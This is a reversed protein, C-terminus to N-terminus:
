RAGPLVAPAIPKIVWVKDADDQVKRRADRATPAAYLISDRGWVSDRDGGTRVGMHKESAALSDFTWQDVGLKHFFAAQATSKADPSSSSSSSARQRKRAMSFVVGALLFALLVGFVIALIGGVSISAVAGTIPTTDPNQPDPTPTTPSPESRQLLPAM